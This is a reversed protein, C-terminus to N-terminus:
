TNINSADKQATSEGTIGIIYKAMNAIEISVQKPM